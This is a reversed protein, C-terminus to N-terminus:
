TASMQQKYILKSFEICINIEISTGTENLM